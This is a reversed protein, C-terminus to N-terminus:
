PRAKCTNTGSEIQPSIMRIYQVLNIGHEFVLHRNTAAAGAKRFIRGCIRCEFSDEEKLFSKVMDLNLIKPDM